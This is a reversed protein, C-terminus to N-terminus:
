SLRVKGAALLILAMDFSDEKPLTSSERTDAKISSDKVVCLRKKLKFMIIFRKFKQQSIGKGM